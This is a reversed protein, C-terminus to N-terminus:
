RRTASTAAALAKDIRQQDFGVVISGAIDVVPVAKTGAKEESEAALSANTTIDKETYSIKKLRFYRKVIDCADCGPKTYVVVSVTM